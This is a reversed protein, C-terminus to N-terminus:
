LHDTVVPLRGTPKDNFAKVPTIEPVGVPVNTPVKLKVTVAVSESVGVAFIALALKLIAIETPGSLTVVVELESATPTTLETYAPAVKCAVPPMVGYEHATVVPLKGAPRIRLAEVPTIDPVGVVAPVELKVTVTVSESVGVALVAVALRLMTTFGAKDTVVADSGAPTIPV